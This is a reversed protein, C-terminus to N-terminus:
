GDFSNYGTKLPPSLPEVVKNGDAVVELAYRSSGNMFTVTNEKICNENIGAYFIGGHIEGYNGVYGTFATPTDSTCFIGGAYSPLSTQGTVTGGNAYLHSVSGNGRTLTIQGDIVGGKYQKGNITNVKTPDSDILTLISEPAANSDALKISGTLVRGALDLTIIKDSLDLTSTLTINNLLTISTVGAEDLASRLEEETSCGKVTVAYKLNDETTELWIKCASLDIDTSLHLASKIASANVTETGTIQKSYYWDNTGDNGQVVLTVAGATSGKTAQIDNKTTNFTVTGINKSSGDLRLTMAPPEGNGDKVITGFTATASSAAGAASAFLVSSLNLKAAPRVDIDLSVSYKEVGAGPVACYAYNEPYLVGDSIQSNYPTCLWFRDGTNWYYERAVFKIAGIGGVMLLDVDYKSLSFLKDTINYLSGYQTGNKTDEISLTTDQLMSLETTNFYDYTTTAALNLYSRLNSGGYHNPYVVTPPSSSVYSCGWSTQYAVEGLAISGSSTSFRINTGIPTAAFIITNDTGGGKGLIYWELPTGSKKGFTLKGLNTPIGKENPSFTDDTLQEKTAYASVSPETTEEASVTTPIIPMMAVALCIALVMSLIQKKM